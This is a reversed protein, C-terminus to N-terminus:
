YRITEVGEPTGLLCLSARHRAFVGVTLVGPWASVEQEFAMPDAIVLGHVDLIALGNDTVVGERRVARGGIASFRRALQAVALPLVEVPLPFRGLVEVRKSADAICVFRDALDAVLKERTLAAGGGKIMFGHPDIEDAGDIYVPLRGGAAAVADIELVEIGHGRLRATSRVSSSVAGRVRERVAALADIFCDVTSGTGVGVLAGDVLHDLAARGVAAKMQQPDMSIM